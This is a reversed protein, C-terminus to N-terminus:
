KESSNKNWKYLKQTMISHGMLDGIRKLESAPTNNTDITNLFLHRIFTLTINMNFICKLRSNAWICFTNPTFPQGNKHFLYKRPEISLSQVILEYVSNPITPYHIKHYRNSTKFKTLILEASNNKLIIYNETFPKEGENIIGLAYYDARVPYVDTYIYLLLKDILELAPDDRKNLIDQFSIDYAGKVIQMDTPINDYRKKVIQKSNNECIDFWLTYYTHLQPILPLLHSSHKMVAIIASIYSHINTSTYAKKKDLPNDIDRQKLYIHLNNIAHLPFMIIYQIDKIPMLELWKIIRTNFLKISSEALSSNPFYNM